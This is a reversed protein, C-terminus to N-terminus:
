QIVNIPFTEHRMMRGVAILLTSIPFNLPFVGRGKHITCIQPKTEHFFPSVLFPTTVASFANVVVVDHLWCDRNTAGFYFVFCREIEGPDEYFSTVTLV